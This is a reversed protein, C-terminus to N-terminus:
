GCGGYASGGRWKIQLAAQGCASACVNRRRVCGRHEATHAGALAGVRRLRRSVGSGGAISPEAGAGCAARCPQGGRAGSSAAGGAGCAARPQRGSASSDVARSAGSALQALDAHGVAGIAAALGRVQVHVLLRDTAEGTNAASAAAASAAALKCSASALRGYRTDAAAGASLAGGLLLQEQRGADGAGGLLDAVVRAHRVAAARGASMAQSGAACGGGTGAGSGAATSGAPASAGGACSGGARRGGAAVHAAVRTALCAAVAIAHQADGADAALKRAVQVRQAM